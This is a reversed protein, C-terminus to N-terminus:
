HSNHYSLIAAHWMHADHGRLCHNHWFLVSQAWKESWRGLSSITRGALISRNRYHMEISVGPKMKYDLLICVMHVQTQDLRKALAPSFPWTCWRCACISLINISLWKLRHALSCMLLSRGLNALFASWMKREHGFLLTRHLWERLCCLRLCKFSKSASVRTRQCCVCRYPM